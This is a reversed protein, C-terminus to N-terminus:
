SPPEVLGFRRVGDSVSRQGSLFAAEPSAEEGVQLGVLVWLFVLRVRSGIFITLTRTRVPTRIHTLSAQADGLVVCHYFHTLVHRWPRKESELLTSEAKKDM